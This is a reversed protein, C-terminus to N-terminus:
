VVKQESIPYYDTHLSYVIMGPKYVPVIHDETEVSTKIPLVTM